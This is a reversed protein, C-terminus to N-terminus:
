WIWRTAWDTMRNFIDVTRKFEDYAKSGTLVTTYCGYKDSFESIANYKAKQAEQVAEKAPTLIEKAKDYAENIVKQAEEKAIDYDQYAKDLAEEASEINKSLAKKEASVSLAKEEATKEAEELAEVTDYTKNLKESFYKM